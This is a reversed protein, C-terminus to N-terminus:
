EVRKVFEARIEKSLEQKIVKMIAKWNEVGTVPDTEYEDRFDEFVDELIAKLLTGFDKSSVEGFKSIASLVRANNIFEM